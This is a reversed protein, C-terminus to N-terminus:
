TLQGSRYAKEQQVHARLKYVVPFVAAAHLGLGTALDAKAKETVGHANPILLYPYRGDLIVGQGIEVGKEATSVRVFGRFTRGSAMTFDAAVTLSNKGKPISLSKLPRLWTDGQGVANEEGVAYEWIPFMQLDGLTLRHIPTRTKLTAVM